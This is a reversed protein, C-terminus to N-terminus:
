QPLRGLRRGADTKESVLRGSWVIIATFVVAGIVIGLLLALVRGYGGMVHPNLFPYPYWDIAAGRIMTYALWATPYILWLAAARRVSIAQGPPVLIWDAMMIVPMLKHLVTNAFAATVQPQNSLLLAFVVGTIGLYLVPAGRFLYRARGDGGEGPKLTGWLLVAVAILNSQITFYSFFDITSRQAGLSQMWQAILAILALLAFILRYGRVWWIKSSVM